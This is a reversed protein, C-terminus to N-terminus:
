LGCEIYLCVLRSTLSPTQRCHLCEGADFAGRCSEAQQHVHYVMKIDGDQIDLADRLSKMYLVQWLRPGPRVIRALIFFTHM